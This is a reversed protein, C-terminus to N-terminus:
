KVRWEKVKFNIQLRKLEDVGTPIPMSSSYCVAIGSKNELIATTGEEPFINKIKEKEAELSFWSGRTTGTLIFTSESEGDENLPEVETYEGVFYPYQLEKNWEEFCYPINAMNLQSAIFKLGSITM